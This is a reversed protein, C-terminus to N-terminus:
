LGVADRTHDEIYPRKRGGEVGGGVGFVVSKQCGRLWSGLLWGLHVRLRLGNVSFGPGWVRFKLM